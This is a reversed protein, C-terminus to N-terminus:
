AVAHLGVMERPIACIEWASGIEPLEADSRIPRDAAFIAYNHGQLIATCSAANTSAIEVILVPRGHRLLGDAGQLIWWEAGEADCKVLDPQKYHEALWDLTLTVVPYTARVGGTQTSHPGGQLANAARGRSAIELGTIGLRDSMAAPIVSVNLDANRPHALTRHLLLQNFPDPEIAVVSGNAVAHAAPFAFLGMNAGIDWVVMGPRVFRRVYDFLAPEMQDPKATLTRLRNASSLYIPRSGFEASLRKQLVLRRLAMEAVRRAFAM